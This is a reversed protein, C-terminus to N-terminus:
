AVGGRHRRRWWSSADVAGLVVLGGLQQMIGLVGAGAGACGSGVLLPGLFATATIGSRDPTNCLDALQGDSMRWLKVVGDECGSLVVNGNTIFSRIPAAHWCPLSTPALSFPACM